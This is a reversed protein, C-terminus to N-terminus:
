VLGAYSFCAESGAHRLSIIHLWEEEQLFFTEGQLNGPLKITNERESALSYRRNLFSFSLLYFFFLRALLLIICYKQAIIHSYNTIGIQTPLM